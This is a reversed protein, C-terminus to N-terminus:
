QFWSTGNLRKGVKKVGRQFRTRATSENIRLLASIEAFSRDEMLRLKCVLGYKPPLRDLLGVIDLVEQYRREPDSKHIERPNGHGDLGGPITIFRRHYAIERNMYQIIKKRRFLKFELDFREPTFEHMSMFLEEFVYGVASDLHEPLVKAMSFRRFLNQVHRRTEPLLLIYFKDWAARNGAVCSRFLREQTSRIGREQRRSPIKKEPGIM